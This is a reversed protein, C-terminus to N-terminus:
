VAKMLKDIPIKLIESLRVLNTPKPYSVGIEWAGVTGQTVGLKSALETQTMGAKIRSVKIRGGVESRSM